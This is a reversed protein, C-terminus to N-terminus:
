ILAYKGDLHKKVLKKLNKNFINSKLGNTALTGSGSFDPLQNCFTHFLSFCRHLYSIKLLSELWHGADKSSIVNKWLQKACM